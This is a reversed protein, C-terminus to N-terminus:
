FLSGEEVGQVEKAKEAKEAKTSKKAVPKKKAVDAKKKDEAKKEAAKIKAEEISKLQEAAAEDLPAVAEISPIIQPIFRMDLEVPDGSYVLPKILNHASSELDSIPKASVIIDEGKKQIVISLKSNDTLAKFLEKFM